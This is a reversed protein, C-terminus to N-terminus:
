VAGALGGVGEDGIKRYGNSAALYFRPGGRASLAHRLVVPKHCNFRATRQGIAQWRVGDPSEGSRTPLGDVTGAGSRLSMESDTISHGVGRSAPGGNHVRNESARDGRGSSSSSCCGIRRRSVANEGAVGLHERSRYAPLAASLCTPFLARFM